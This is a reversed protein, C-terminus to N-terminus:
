IKKLFTKISAMGYAYLIGFCMFPHIFWAIDPKVVFGRISDFLPRIVTVTFFVYKLLNINDAMSKSDYVKYNRPTARFHFDETYKQRKKIFRWFSGASTAHVVTNKVFAFISRGSKVLDYASDSHTFYELKSDDPLAIRKFEERRTVFGNCGLPPMNNYDFEVRYYEGCDKAKGLMNWKKEFYSFRDRKNLYYAVPDHLGILTFYRDLINDKKRYEYMLPQVAAIGPDVLLPKIMEKLWNKGIIFIDSDIYAIIENKAKILGMGRRAEPNERYGANVFEAGFKKAIEGSNDTSGGDMVLIELKNRDYDQSAIASLCEELNRAANLAVIVISVSPWTTIKSVDIQTRKM